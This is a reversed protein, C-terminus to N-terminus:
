AGTFVNEHWTSPVPSFYGRKFKADRSHFFELVVHINIEALKIEGMLHANKM